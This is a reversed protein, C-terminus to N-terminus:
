LRSFEFANQTRRLGALSKAIADEDSFRIKPDKFDAGDRGLGSGTHTPQLGVGTTSPGSQHRMEHAILNGLAIGFSLQEAEPARGLTSLTTASTRGLLGHWFAFAPGLAIVGYAVCVLEPVRPPIAFVHKVTYSRGTDIAYSEPRNFRTALSRLGPITRSGANLANYVHLRFGFSAQVTNLYCEVVADTLELSRIESTAGLVVAKLGGAKLFLEDIRVRTKEWIREPLLGRLDRAVVVYGTAGTAGKAAARRHIRTLTATGGSPGPSPTRARVLTDSDIDPSETGTGLPGGTRGGGM